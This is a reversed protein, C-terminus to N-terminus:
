GHRISYYLGVGGNQDAKYAIADARDKDRGLKQPNLLKTRISNDQGVM